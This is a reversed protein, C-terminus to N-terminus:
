SNKTSSNNKIKEYHKDLIHQKEFYNKIQGGISEFVFEKDHKRADLAMRLLWPIDNFLSDANWVIHHTDNSIHVEGYEQWIEHTEFIYVNKLEKDEM